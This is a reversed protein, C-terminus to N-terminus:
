RALRGLSVAAGGAAFGAATLLLPVTAADGGFLGFGLAVVAAGLTTGLLRAQALMGNAAGARATPGATLIARNNPTQFFGFGIGCLVMRWAINLDGPADPLLALALLGAALCGLGISSLIGAPYRDSLYGSLPAVVVIVLPWPTILLGTRVEDYGLGHQFFFPLSVYAVTQAAYSLISTVFSLSFLRIRLLDLPVLPHARGRQHRLLVAMLGLGAVVAALGLAFSHSLADVGLVLLVIGAGNLLAGVIDFPRRQRRSAPLFALAVTIALIGIPINVAFLWRWNAVALIGAAVSPGLATSVAVTLGFLAIGRGILRRPFITQMLVGGVVSSCAGGLGQLVRAFVLWNLDAALACGLSALTFLLTGALYLRKAGQREGVAALPLLAIATALQYGNVVWVSAAPTGGLDAAITPLAVNAISSDLTGLFTGLLVGAVAWIRRPMPLGDDVATATERTM